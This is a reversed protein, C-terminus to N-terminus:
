RSDGLLFRLGVKFDFSFPHERDYVPWNGQPTFYWAVGPEAYLCTWRSFAYELGGSAVLSGLLPHETASEAYGRLESDNDLRGSVMWELEGGFAAYLHFDNKRLLMVDAKLPVDLYHGRYHRTNGSPEFVQWAHRYAYGIGSELGFVPTFDYRLSVGAKVPPAYHIETSGLEASNYTRMLVVPESKDIEEMGIASNGNYAAYAYRMDNIGSVNNLTWSGVADKERLLDALSGTGIFNGAHVKASFGGRRRSARSPEDIDPWDTVAQQTDTTVFPNDDTVSVASDDADPEAPAPNDTVPGETVHDAVPETVAPGSSAPTSVPHNATPRRLDSLLGPSTLAPAPVDLQAPSAAAILGEPVGGRSPTKGGPLLLLLALAAAAGAALLPPLWRVIRPRGPAPLDLEYDGLSEQFKERWTDKM